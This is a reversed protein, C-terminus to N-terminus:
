IARIPSLSPLRSGFWTMGEDASLKQLSDVADVGYLASTLRLASALGDRGHVLLTVQEALLKQARRHAAQEASLQELETVKDLPVFTLLRLLRHVDSDRTRMLFQYFEFSSTRESSLWVPNGASKGLKDGEEDTILPVNVGFVQKEPKEHVNDDITGTILEYGALMNGRQDSGGIQISCQYKRWLYLWDYGQLVQYSFEAFSMGHSTNRRSTTLPSDESPESSNEAPSISKLRSQVSSLSLMKAMRFRRGVIAMFDIFSYQGYWESNNLVTLEPLSLNKPCIHQEHNFFVNRINRELGAANQEIVEQQLLPRERTRGSPDGLLASASGIVALPAVGSRQLHILAVLVLLHGLHLSDATPDFGAYASRRERALLQRLLDPRDPTLGCAIGRDVLRSYRRVYRCVSEYLPRHPSVASARHVLTCHLPPVHLCARSSRLPVFLLCM